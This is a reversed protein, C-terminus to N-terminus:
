IDQLHDQVCVLLVKMIKVVELLIHLMKVFIYHQMIHINVILHYNIM